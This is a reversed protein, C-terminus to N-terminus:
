RSSSGTTTSSYQPYLPLLILEDCGAQRIREIAELTFPHWYRMAVFVRADITKRLEDELASAQRDTLKRIPSAGGIQAYHRAVKRARGKSIPKALVPRAIKALPFDIIDPDSFLNYLFPEIAEPTDPGGLQFLVVGITKDKM